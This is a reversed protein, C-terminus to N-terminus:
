RPRLAMVIRHFFETQVKKRKPNKQELLCMYFSILSVELVNINNHAALMQTNRILTLHGLMIPCNTLLVLEGGGRWLCGAAAM